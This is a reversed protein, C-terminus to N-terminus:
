QLLLCYVKILLLASGAGPTPRAEKGGIGRSVASTAPVVIGKKLNRKEKKIKLKKKKKKKKKYISNSSNSNSSSSSSNDNNNHNNNNNNLILRRILCPCSPRARARRSTAAAAPRASCPRGSCFCARVIRLRVIM